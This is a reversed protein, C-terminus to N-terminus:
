AREIRCSHRKFSSDNPRADKNYSVGVLLTNGAYHALRSPYKRARIQDLATQVEREYKLEVVLAPVEPHRPAPLYCVDVYGKGSDLELISTYYLQAAYYALQVAYSLAAESNYTTNGTRDHAAELLTAVKDEDMDWTARVLEKSAELERFAPGWEPTGTSERFVEMVERNPIFVEGQDSDWGLYGLHILLALVDDRSHFTAMDNQYTGLSAKARGGDMLLSVTQKLGGFDLNIYEELAKYTETHNWYNAIVGSRLAKVVSLPSYLAYRPAELMPKGETGPRPPVSGKVEYGDYWSRMDGFDRGWAACLERVEEETFGTYPALQLPAVMSYEDFMNLASHMGYKKIPLIGTIYALAVYEKDKLWDRLFELYARQGAEDDRRERIPADWEDIVIVFPVGTHAFVRSMVNRLDLRRGYRVEPYAEMLEDTVDEVLYAIAQDISEGSTLFDTMTVRVVDFAGLYADWSCANKDNANRSAVKLQQFLNRAQSERGYYACLMDAAMTKGFRRPRSVSLCKQNTRVVSNLYLLMESKDVFVDSNVAEQFRGSGPNLYMGM